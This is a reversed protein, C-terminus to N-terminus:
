EQHLHHMKKVFDGMLQTAETIYFDKMLQKLTAKWGIHGIGHYHAIYIPASHRPICLKAEKCILGTKPNKQLVPYCWDELEAKTATSQLDTSLQANNLIMAPGSNAASYEIELQPNSLLIVEYGSLRQASM